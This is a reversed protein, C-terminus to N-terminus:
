SDVPVLHLPSAQKVKRLAQKRRQGTGQSATLKFRVANRQLQWWVGTQQKHQLSNAVMFPVLAQWRELLVKVLLVVLVDQCGVKVKMAMLQLALDLRVHDLLDLSLLHATTAKWHKLLVTFLWLSRM